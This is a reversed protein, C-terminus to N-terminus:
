GFHGCIHAPFISRVTWEHVQQLEGFANSFVLGGIPNGNGDAGHPDLEGGNDGAPINLKTLDGVGTIQIYDPTQVFHAGTITGDAILRTGYGDRLCWSVEVRETDGITANSGSYPPAFLCFDDVSNVSISVSDTTNYTRYIDSSVTHTKVFPTRAQNLAVSTQAMSATKPTTPLMRHCTHQQIPRRAVAPLSSLWCCRM